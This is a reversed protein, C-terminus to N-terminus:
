RAQLNLNEDGGTCRAVPIQLLLNAEGIRGGQLGKHTTTLREESLEDCVCFWIEPEDWPASGDGSFFGATQFYRSLGWRSPNAAPFSAPSRLGM